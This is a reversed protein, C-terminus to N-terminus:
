LIELDSITLVQTPDPAVKMGETSALRLRARRSFRCIPDSGDIQQDSEDGLTALARSAAARVLAHEHSCLDAILEVGHRQGAERLALAARDGANQENKAAVCKALEAVAIPGIHGLAKAADKWAESPDDVLMDCIATAAGPSAAEGFALAVCQRLSSNTASLGDLLAIRHAGTAVVMPPLLRILEDDSFDDLHKLLTSFDNDDHGLLLDSAVQVRRKRDSLGSSIQPEGGQNGLSGARAFGSAHPATPRREGLAEYVESPAELGRAECFSILRQWSEREFAPDLSLAERADDDAGAGRRAEVLASVYAAPSECLGSAIVRRWFRRPACLGFVISHALIRHRLQEFEGVPMGDVELLHALNSTSSVAELHELAAWAESSSIIYQYDGAGIQVVAPELRESVTRAGLEDIADEWGSLPFDGAALVARASEFCLAANRQLGPGSVGRVVSSADPSDGDIEVRVSVEECLRDIILSAEESAPDVVGDIVSVRGLYSALVRLSLVPYGLNRLHVPRVSLAATGWHARAEDDMVVRLSVQNGEGLLVLGVHSSLEGEQTVGSLEMGVQVPVGTGVGPENASAYDSGVLGVRTGSRADREWPSLGDLELDARPSPSLLWAPVVGDHSEIVRHHWRLAEMVEGLRERSLVLWSRHLERDCAVWPAHGIAPEGCAPCMGEFPGEDRVRAARAGDLTVDIWAWRRARFLVGCECLYSTMVVHSLSDNEMVVASLLLAGDNETYLDESHRFLVYGRRREVLGGSARGREHVIQVGRERLVHLARELKRYIVAFGRERPYVVVQLRESTLCAPRDELDDGCFRTGIEALDDPFLDAGSPDAVPFIRPTQTQEKFGLEEVKRGNILGVLDQEPFVHDLVIGAQRVRAGQIWVKM